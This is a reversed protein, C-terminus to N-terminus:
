DHAVSTKNLVVEKKCLRSMTAEDLNTLHGDNFDIFGKDNMSLPNIVLSEGLYLVPPRLDHARAGQLRAAVRLNTRRGIDSEFMGGVWVPLKHTECYAIMKWAPLLGGVRGPKLNLEDVAGMLHAAVLGGPGTISEDLCINLDPYEKKLGVCLDLRGPAFPQELMDPRSAVLAELFAFDGEECSGNADFGLYVKPFASRVAFLTKLNMGPAVKLKVRHYGAEVSKSVAELASNPSEYIPLSIGIPIKLLPAPWNDFPDCIGKRQLLDLVADMVSAVTFPWGRIRSLVTTLDKLSGQESLQPFIFDRVIAIAGDVFEGNFYPDPRCSCEAIGWDGDGDIWRLILALRSDRTGIASKFRTKHPVSVVQLTLAKLSIPRSLLDTHTSFYSM